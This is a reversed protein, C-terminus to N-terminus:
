CRTRCIGSHRALISASRLPEAATRIKPSCLGFASGAMHCTCVCSSHSTFLDFICDSVRGKRM